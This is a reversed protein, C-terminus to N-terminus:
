RMSNKRKGKHSHNSETDDYGGGNLVKIDITVNRTIFKLLGVIDTINTVVLSDNDWEIDIPRKFESNM